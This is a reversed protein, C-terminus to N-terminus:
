QLQLLFYIGVSGVSNRPYVRHINWVGATKRLGNGRCLAFSTHFFQADTFDSPSPAVKLAWIFFELRPASRL